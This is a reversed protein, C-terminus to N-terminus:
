AVRAATFRIEARLGSPEFHLEVVSGPGLDQGPGRRDTEMLGYGSM